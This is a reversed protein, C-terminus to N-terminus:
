MKRNEEKKQAHEFTGDLVSTYTKADDIVEIAKAVDEDSKLQCEIRGKQYYYRTVIESSLFRKIEKKNRELDTTKNHMMKSQLAEFESKCDEFYKEKEASKKLDALEKESKTTYDYKKDALYNVFDNYIEDTVEFKDPPDISAHKLCFQTAYDFVLYRSLLSYSINSLVKSDTYIDPEIGAGDYVVRGRQTKFATKLSDPFKEAIGNTDREAYNIAQICRGSPIYYKAVTVKFQTNYSLPLVNQVLGKGFTRQGVIVGRDLDQIAGTVIESASASSGNVLIVLPLDTDIPEMLTKYTKNKDELKGKTSVVLEDRKVFLNTINVAENLLGGGNDRLDFILGRLNNKAKLALLAKKTESSAEQTFGTLKIYGIHDNVMGYYPVNEVTIKERIIEKEFPKPEGPREILLRASTGPQGKLISSIDSVTKDLTPKDNVKLVRDGAKIGAKQAPFGEYPESIVIANGQKHILSGIGGYQGTTIFKYDEIEAEPIYVTYPDLSELMADIGTKMLEGPKLADVYNTNLEKYLTAFIDLNKSLEFNDTNQTNQSAAPVIFVLSLALAFLLNNSSKM